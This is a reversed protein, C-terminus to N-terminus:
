AKSEKSTDPTLWGKIKNYMWAGDSVSLLVELEKRPVPIIEGNVISRVLRAIDGIPCDPSSGDATEQILTIDIADLHIQRMVPLPEPNAPM